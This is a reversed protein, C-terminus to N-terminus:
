SFSLPLDEYFAGGKLDMTSHLRSEKRLAEVLTARPIETGEDPNGHKGPYTSLLTRLRDVRGEAGRRRFLGWLSKPTANLSGHHGVKYVTVGKLMERLDGSVDAGKVKAQRLAYQWSEAQADGPFLLRQDGVEFLLVVSTNNLAADLERVIARVQDARVSGLGRALRRAEPPLNSFKKARPFLNAEAGRDITELLGIARLWFEDEDKRRQKALDAFQDMTPPGLVWVKVGPLLAGLGSEEGFAVYRQGAKTRAMTALNEIADLNPLNDAGLFELESITRKAVGRSRGLSNGASRLHSLLAEAGRSMGHLRAVFAPGPPLSEIAKRADPAAKPDETWPQIVLEPELARFIDGPGDGKKGGRAFGNIHDAHRHTAVIADLTGGCRGRVDEAVRKLVSGGAPMQGGGMSGCDILVHRERDPYAFSLLFSDGFGVRYMRLNLSTPAQVAKPGGRKRKVAM